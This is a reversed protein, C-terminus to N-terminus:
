ISCSGLAYSSLCSSCPDYVFAGVWHNDWAQSAAVLAPAVAGLRSARTPVEGLLAAADLEGVLVRPAPLPGLVKPPEPPKRAFMGCSTLVAACVALRVRVVPAGVRSEASPVGGSGM